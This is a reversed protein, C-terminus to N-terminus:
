SFSNANSQGEKNKAMKYEAIALPVVLLGFAYVDFLYKFQGAATLLAFAPIRALLISAGMASAPTRKYFILLLLCIILSPLMSYLKKTFDNYQVQVGIEALAPLNEKYSTFDGALVYDTRFYDPGITNLDRPLGITKDTGFLMHYTMLMRGKVFLWPNDWILKLILNKLDSPFKGHINERYAGKYVPLIVEEQHYKMIMDYKYYRNIIEMDKDKDDSEYNPDTIISGIYHSATIAMKIAPGAGPTYIRKLGLDGLFLIGFFALLIGKAKRPLGISSVYFLVFLGGTLIAERRLSIATVALFFLFFDMFCLASTRSNLKRFILGFALALHIMCVIVDRSILNTFFGVTPLCFVLVSYLKWPASVKLKDLLVQYAGFLIFSAFSFCISIFLISEKILVFALVILENLFTFWSGAYFKRAHNYTDVFDVDFIVPFSMYHYLLAVVGGLGIPWAMRFLAPRDSKVLEKVRKLVFVFLSLFFGFFLSSIVWAGTLVKNSAVENLLKMQTIKACEEISQAAPVDIEKENIKADSLNLGGISCVGWIPRFLLYLKDTDKYLDYSRHIKKDKSNFVIVQPKAKSEQSIDQKFRLAKPQYATNPIFILGIVFGLILFSVELNSKFFNFFEKM